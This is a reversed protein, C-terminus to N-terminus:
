TYPCGPSETDLVLGMGVADWLEGNRRRYHRLFLAEDQFGFRRYLARASANHPWVTLVMKHAAQERAWEIATRMLASGVGRGRWDRHVMMGLDAIGRQVNVSLSGILQGQDRRALLQVTGPVGLQSRWRAVREDRDVPLEGAIWKGEAAVMEYLDVLAELDSVEAVAISYEAVM